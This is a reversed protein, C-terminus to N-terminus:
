AWEILGGGTGEAGATVGEIDLAWVGIDAKDATDEFLVKTM